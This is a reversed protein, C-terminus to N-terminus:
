KEEELLQFIKKQADIVIKSKKLERNLRTNEERLVAIEKLYKDSSQKNLKGKDLQERWKAVNSSYLGERRLISGIQGPKVAGDIEKLIELKYKKSFRRRRKTTKVETEPTNASGIFNESNSNPSNETASCAGEFEGFELIKERKLDNMKVKRKM